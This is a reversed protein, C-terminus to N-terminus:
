TALVKPLEAATEVYQCVHKLSPGVSSLRRIRNVRHLRDFLDPPDCTSLVEVSGAGAEYFLRVFVRGM